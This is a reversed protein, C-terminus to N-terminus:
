FIASRIQQIAEKLPEVEQDCITYVEEADINFYDHALLNRISMVGAWNIEPHQDFFDQSILKSIRQINEGIAILMMAIADLRDIGAEDRLFDDPSQIGSFRREIRRIAEETELFLELLLPRDYM